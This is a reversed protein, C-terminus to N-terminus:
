VGQTTIAARASNRIGVRARASVGAADWGAKRRPVVQDLQSWRAKIKRTMEQGQASTIETGSLKKPPM